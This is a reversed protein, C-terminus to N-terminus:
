KYPVPIPVTRIYPSLQEIRWRRLEQIRFWNRQLEEFRLIRENLWFTELIGESGFALEFRGRVSMRNAPHYSVRRYKPAKEEGEYAPVRPPLIFYSGPTEVRDMITDRGGSARFGLCKESGPQCHQVGHRVAKPNPAFVISGFILIAIFILMAVAAKRRM